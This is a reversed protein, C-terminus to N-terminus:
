QPLATGSGQDGGGRRMKYFFGNEPPTSAGFTISAMPWPNSLPRDAGCAWYFNSLMLM